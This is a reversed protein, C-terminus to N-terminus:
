SSECECEAGGPARLFCAVKVLDSDPLLLRDQGAVVSIPARVCSRDRRRGRVRGHSAEM